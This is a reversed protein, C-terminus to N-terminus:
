GFYSRLFNASFTQSYGSLILFIAFSVFIFHSFNGAPSVPLTERGRGRRRSLRRPQQLTELQHHLDDPQRRRTPPLCVKTRRNDDDSMRSFSIPVPKLNEARLLPQENEFNFNQSENIEFSPAMKEFNKGASKKKFM